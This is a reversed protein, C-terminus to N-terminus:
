SNTASPTDDRKPGVSHGDIAFSLRDGATINRETTWGRNLELVYQGRGPYYQDSGDEGPGPAPAHQIGTIVGEDDAYIIDLGFDMERMFFSRDAVRNYVFLMGRYEPLSPTDSLGTYRLDATDAIAATVPGFRACQTTVIQVDTTEYGEHIPDNGGTDEDNLAEIVERRTCGALGATAAGLALLRRRRM